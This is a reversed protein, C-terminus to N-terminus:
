VARSKPSYNGKLNISDIAFGSTGNSKVKISTNKSEGMILTKTTDTKTRSQGNVTTEVDVVSGDRTQIEIQRITLRGVKDDVNFDGGMKFGWENLIVYSDFTESTETTHETSGLNVKWITKDGVSLGSENLVEPDSVEAMIFLNDDVVQLNFIELGNFTWRHWASQSKEEGEWSMNYVYIHDKDDQRGSVTFLMDYKDSAQLAVLDGHVYTPVHGTIDAAENTTTNPVNYFERIQSYDKATMAFYVNPGIPVPQMATNITYSTSQSISGTTPTLSTGSDLIYQGHTGFLLLNGSYPVAFRLAAIKNTDVAIDVPDTDLIDTVTTRFFNEYVGTESFIVNENSLFGLRNKHFFVDDIQTGVFSPMQNTDEDGKDREYWDFAAFSFNYGGGAGGTAADRTLIHPMTSADLGNSIGPAVTEKWGDGDYYAWFGEFRNNEDGTVQVLTDVGSFSGMDNPLDQLKKITGHWGESAQNGWSDSTVWTGSSGINDRVISGSASGGIGSALVSAVTDSKKGDGNTESTTTSNITYTYTTVQDANQGSYAVWTRKVWYYGYQKHLSTDTTSWTKSSSETVTKTRNVVFTTDGVTVVAFSESPKAGAPLDLYSHTGYDQLDGDTNYVRWFGDGIAILYSETGDGREYSHIFPNDGINNDVAMYEISNRRRTGETMSITCNVMEDVTTAHRLEPSQQSVGNILSPITQNVEM